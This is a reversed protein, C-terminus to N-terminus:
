RWAFGAWVFNGSDAWGVGSDSICATLCDPKENIKSDVLYSLKNVAGDFMTEEVPALRIDALLWDEWLCVFYGVGMASKTQM